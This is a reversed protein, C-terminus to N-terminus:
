WMMIMPKYREETIQKLVTNYIPELLFIARGLVSVVLYSTAILGASCGHNTNISKM